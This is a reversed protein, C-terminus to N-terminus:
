PCRRDSRGAQRDRDDPVSLERDLTMAGIRQLMAAAVRHANVKYEGRSVRQQFYGIQEANTHMHNTEESDKM